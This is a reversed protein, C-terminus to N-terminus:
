KSNPLPPPLNRRRDGEPLPLLPRQRPARVYPLSGRQHAERQRGRYTSTLTDDSVTPTEPARRRKTASPRRRNDDNEADSQKAHRQSATGREKEHPQPAKDGEKADLDM